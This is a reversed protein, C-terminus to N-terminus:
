QPSVVGAVAKGSIWCDLVLPLYIDWKVPAAFTIMFTDTDTLGGTDTVEVVVPVTGTFAYTPHIDIYRHSDITVGASIPPSNTIAFALAGDADETDSAYTWLDIADESSQGPTLKQDPLGSLAPATNEFPWGIDRLVGMIVPGPAHVSHGYPIAYTMLDDDSGNFSEALHSYSSGDMWTSPAFLAPPAGGNGANARPADFLLAGGTLQEALAASGNEYSLLPTGAGNNTFRDYALPYAPSDGWYWYGLNSIVTMSGAFGLGHCIEHLVVSVFDVQNTPTSGDMGFYWSFTSGFAVHIDLSSGSVRSGHLANALATPYYTDELPAGDFNRHYDDAGSVGLFSPDGLNTWCANIEIPVTTSILTEWISAAYDFAVIAEAPWTLCPFGFGDTMGDPLYHVNITASQVGMLRRQTFGAPPPIRFTSTSPDLRLVVPRRVGDLSEGQIPDDPAAVTTRGPNIGFLLLTLVAIIRCGISSNM